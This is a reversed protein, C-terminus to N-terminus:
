FVPVINPKLLHLADGYLVKLHQKNSLGLFQALRKVKLIFESNYIIRM